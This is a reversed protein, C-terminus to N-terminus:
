QTTPTTTHLPPAVAAVNMIFAQPLPDGAVLGAADALEGVAREHSVRKRRLGLALAGRQRWLGRPIVKLGAIRQHIAAPPSLSLRVGATKRM